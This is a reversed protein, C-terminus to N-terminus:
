DPVFLAFPEGVFFDLHVGELRFLSLELDVDHLLELVGVEHLDYLMMEILFFFLELDNHLVAFAPVQRVEDAVVFVSGSCENEIYELLDDIGEDSHACLSDHVAVEFGFVYEHGFVSGDFDGVEAAGLADVDM